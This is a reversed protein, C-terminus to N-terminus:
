KIINLIHDGVRLANAIITLSPNIAGSSVFFSGDVVYLNDIEHTKCNIDLVSTSADTGFRLTGCQHAVGALPIKKGLYLKHDLITDCVGCDELVSKWKMRMRDFGETNNDRYQLLVKGNKITVRNEQDPLDEGTMWWDISHSAMQDLVFGPAFKPADATLMDKNSKGLLQIHGMPFKFEDDGFYFDNVAMTKQFVTKNVKRSLALMAANQHKM